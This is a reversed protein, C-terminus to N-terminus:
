MVITNQLKCQIYCFRSHFVIMPRAESASVWWEAVVLSFPLGLHMGKWYDLEEQGHALQCMDGSYCNPYYPCPDKKCNQGNPLKCNRVPVSSGVKPQVIM